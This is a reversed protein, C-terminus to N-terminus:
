YGSEMLLRHIVDEKDICQATSVNRCRAVALLDKISLERLTAEDISPRRRGPSTGSDTGSIEALNVAADEQEAVAFNVTSESEVVKFTNSSCETDNNGAVSDHSNHTENTLRVVIQVRGSEILCEALEKKEIAHGHPVGFAVLM